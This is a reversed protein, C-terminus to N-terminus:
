RVGVKDFEADGMQFKRCHAAVQERRFGPVVQLAAQVGAVTRQQHDAGTAIRDQALIEHPARHWVPDRQMLAAQRQFDAIEVDIGPQLQWRGQLGRFPLYEAHDARGSQIRRLRQFEVQMHGAAFAHDIGLAHALIELQDRLQGFLINFGGM